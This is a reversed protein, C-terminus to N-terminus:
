CCCCTLEGLCLGFVLPFHYLIANCSRVMSKTSPSHDRKARDSRTMSPSLSPSSTSSVGKVHSRLMRASGGGGNTIKKSSDQSEIRPEKRFNESPYHRKALLLSPAELRRATTTSFSSVLTILTLLFPLVATRRQHRRLM